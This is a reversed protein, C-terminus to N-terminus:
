SSSASFDFVRPPEPLAFAALLLTRPRGGLDVSLSPTRPVRRSVGITGKIM